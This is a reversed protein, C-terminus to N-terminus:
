RGSVSSPTVVELSLEGLLEIGHDMDVVSPGELRELPGARPIALFRGFRKGRTQSM